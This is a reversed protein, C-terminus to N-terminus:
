KPSWDVIQDIHFLTPRDHRYVINISPNSLCEMHWDWKLSSHVSDQTPIRATTREVVRWQGQKICQEFERAQATILYLALYFLITMVFLSGIVIATDSKM